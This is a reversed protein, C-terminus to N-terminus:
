KTKLLKSYIMNTIPKYIISRRSLFIILIILMALLFLIGLTMIISGTWSYILVGAIIILTILAFLSISGLVLILITKGLIDASTEALEIKKLELKNKVITQVYHYNEGLDTILNKNM